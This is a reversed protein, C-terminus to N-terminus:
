DCSVNVVTATKRYTQLLSDCKEDPSEAFRDCARQVVEDAGGKEAVARCCRIAKECVASADVVAADSGGSFSAKADRAELAKAALALAEVDEKKTSFLYYGALALVVGLVSLSGCGIGLWLWPATTPQTKGAPQTGGERESSRQGGAM